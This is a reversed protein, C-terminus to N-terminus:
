RWAVVEYYRTPSYSDLHDHVAYDLVLERGDIFGSGEIHFGDVDQEPIYIDYGSVEAVVEIGVGYFNRIFITHPYRASKVINFSYESYSGSTKDYEEVDYYGVFFNRSDHLPIPEEVVTVECSMLILFLFPAIPILKKM